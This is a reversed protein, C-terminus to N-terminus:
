EAPEIVASMSGKSRPLDNVAVKSRTSITKVHDRRAPIAQPIARFSGNGKYDLRREPLSPPKSCTAQYRKNKGDKTQMPKARALQRLLPVKAKLIPKCFPGPDRLLQM